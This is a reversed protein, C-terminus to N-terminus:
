ISQRAPASTANQQDEVFQLDYLRRYTGLKEMLEDHPGVDAITGSELVVIRDAGRITSLRHAIVLVTRGAM